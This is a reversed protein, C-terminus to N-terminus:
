RRRASTDAAETSTPSLSHFARVAKVRSAQETPGLIARWCVHSSAPEHHIGRPHVGSWSGGWFRGPWRSSCLRIGARPKSGGMQGRKIAEALIEASPSRTPSMSYSRTWIIKQNCLSHAVNMGLPHIVAIAELSFLWYFLLLDRVPLAM